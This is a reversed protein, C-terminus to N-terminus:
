GEAPLDLDLLAALEVAESHFRIPNKAEAEGARRLMPPAGVEEEFSVAARHWDRSLTEVLGGEPALEEAVPLSPPVSNVSRVEVDRVESDERHRRALLPHPVEDGGAPRDAPALPEEEERVLPSKGSSVNEAALPDVAPSLSNSQKVPKRPQHLSVGM